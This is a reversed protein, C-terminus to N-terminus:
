IKLASIILKSKWLSIIKLALNSYPEHVPFGTASAHSFFGHVTSMIRFCHIEIGISFLLEAFNEGEEFLPDFEATVILSPPLKSLLSTDCKCVSVFPNDKLAPDGMFWGWSKRVFAETLRYDKGLRPWCKSSLHADTAPYILCEGIIEPPLHGEQEIIKLLASITLHAGASDGGIIVSHVKNSELEEILSNRHQLLWHISDICDNVPIPFHYEPALRYAVSVVLFGLECIKGCIYNYSDLTGRVWGGGHLYVFLTLNETTTSKPPIYTRCHINVGNERSPIYFDKTPVTSSLVPTNRLEEITLPAGPLPVKLEPDIGLLHPKPTIHHVKFCKTTSNEFYKEQDDIGSEM